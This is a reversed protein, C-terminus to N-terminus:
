VVVYYMCTVQVKYTVEIELEARMKDLDKITLHVNKLQGM